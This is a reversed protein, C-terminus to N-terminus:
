TAHAPLQGCEGEQRGGDFVPLDTFEVFEGRQIKEVTKRLLPRLGEVLYLKEPRGKGEPKREGLESSGGLMKKALSSVSDGIGM